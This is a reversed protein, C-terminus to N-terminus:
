ACASALKVFLFERARVEKVSAALWDRATAGNISTAKTTQFNDDDLLIRRPPLLNDRKISGKKRSNLDYLDTGRTSYIQVCASTM